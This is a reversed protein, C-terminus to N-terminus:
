NWRYMIIEFALLENKLNVPTFSVYLRNEIFGPTFPHLIIALISKSVIACQNEILKILHIWAENKETIHYSLGILNPQFRHLYFSSDSLGGKIMRGDDNIEKNGQMRDFKRGFWGAAKASILNKGIEPLAPAKKSRPPHKTKILWRGTAGALKISM